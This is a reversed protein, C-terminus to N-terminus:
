LLGYCVPHAQATGRKFPLQATGPPAQGATLAAGPGNNQACLIPHGMGFEGAHEVHALNIAGKRIQVGIQIREVRLLRALGGNQAEDPTDYKVQHKECTQDIRQDAPLGRKLLAWWYGSIFHFGRALRPERPAQIHASILPESLAPVAQM